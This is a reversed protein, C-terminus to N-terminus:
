NLYASLMAAFQQYLGQLAEIVENRQLSPAFVQCLMEIYGSLAEAIARLEQETFLICVGEMSQPSSVLKKLRQHLRQMAQIHTQEAHSRRLYLLYMKLVNELVKVDNPHIPTFSIPSHSTESRKM